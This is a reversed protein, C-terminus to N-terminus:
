CFQELTPFSFVQSFHSQQYSCSRLIMFFFGARHRNSDPSPFFDDGVYFTVQFQKGSNENMGSFPFYIWYNNQAYFDHKDVM